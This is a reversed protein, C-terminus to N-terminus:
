EHDSEWIRALAGLESEITRITKEFTAPVPKGSLPPADVVLRARVIVGDTKTPIWLQGKVLKDELWIAEYKAGLGKDANNEPLVRFPMLWTAKPFRRALQLQMAAHQEHRVDDRSYPLHLQAQSLGVTEMRLCLGNSEWRWADSMVEGPRGNLNKEWVQRLTLIEPGGVHTATARLKAAAGALLNWRGAQWTRTAARPSPTWTWETALWRGDSLKRVVAIRDSPGMTTAISQGQWKGDWAVAPLPPAIGQRAQQWRWWLAPQSLCSNSPSPLPLWQRMQLRGQWVCDITGVRWGPAAQVKEDKACPRPVQQALLRFNEIVGTAVDGHQSKVQTGAAHSNRAAPMLLVILGALVLSAAVRSTAKIL